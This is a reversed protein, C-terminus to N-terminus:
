RSRYASAVLVARLLEAEPGTRGSGAVVADALAEGDLESLEAFAEHQDTAICVAALVAERTGHAFMDEAQPRLLTAAPQADGGLLEGLGRIVAVPRRALKQKALDAAAALEDAVARATIHLENGYPDRRGAYDDLVYIGASGIAHDTQGLRWPRGATDSIIVGVPGGVRASFQGRLSEASADPDTPLLLVADPAVNSNDVGAAALILGLRHRVIRTPGRRAVLSATESRVADERREAPWRRNEAKSIVKSTIVVIDEPQLPGARDAAVATLVLAALDVGPEVEGIGDPAFIEIV